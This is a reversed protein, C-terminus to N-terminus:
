KLRRLIAVGMYFMFLASVGAFLWSYFPSGVFDPLSIWAWLFPPVFVLLLLFFGTLFGVLKRGQYKPSRSMAWGVFVAGLLFYM